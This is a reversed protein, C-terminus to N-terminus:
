MMPGVMQNSKWKRVILNRQLSVQSKQGDLRKKILWLLRATVTRKMGIVEKLRKGTTM